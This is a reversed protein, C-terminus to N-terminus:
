STERVEYSVHLLCAPIQEILDPRNYCNDLNSCAHFTCRNEGASRPETLVIRSSVVPCRASHYHPIQKAQM